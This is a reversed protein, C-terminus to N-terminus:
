RSLGRRKKLPMCAHYGGQYGWPPPHKRKTQHCHEVWVSAAITMHKRRNKVRFGWTSLTILRLLCVWRCAHMCTDVMIFGSRYKSDSQHCLTWSWSPSFGWLAEKQIAITTRTRSHRENKKRSFTKNKIKQEPCTSRVTPLNSYKIVQNKHPDMRGHRAGYRVSRGVELFFINHAVQLGAVCERPSLTWGDNLKDICLPKM